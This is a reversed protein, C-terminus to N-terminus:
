VSVVLLCTSGHLQKKTDRVSEHVFLMFFELYHYVHEFPAFCHKLEFQVCSSSSKIWMHSVLITGLTLEPISLLTGWSKTWLQVAPWLLVLPLSLSKLFETIRKLKCGSKNVNLKVYETVPFMYWLKGNGNWNTPMGIKRM